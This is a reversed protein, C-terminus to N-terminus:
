SLKIKGKALKLLQTLGEAPDDNKELIAVSEELTICDHLWAYVLLAEAADALTHSSLSSPLYERLGTRRLAEALLSGKVKKGLPKGKKNSLALSYTFNIFADGLSALDHDTLVEPLSQHSEIFSFTRSHKKLPKLRKLGNEGQQREM